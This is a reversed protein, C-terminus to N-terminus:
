IKQLHANIFIKNYELFESHKLVQLLDPYPVDNPYAIVHIHVIDVVDASPWEYDLHLGYSLMIYNENM